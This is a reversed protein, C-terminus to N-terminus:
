HYKKHLTLLFFCNLSVTGCSDGCAICYIHQHGDKKYIPDMSFRGLEVGDNIYHNKKKKWKIAVTLQNVIRGSKPHNAHKGRSLM